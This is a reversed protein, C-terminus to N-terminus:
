GLKRWRIEGVRELNSNLEVRAEWAQAGIKAARSTINREEDSSLSGPDHPYVASKVQVLMREKNKPNEFLKPFLYNMLPVRHADIDTSGPLRTDVKVHTYGRYRLWTAVIREGAQGIEFSTPM